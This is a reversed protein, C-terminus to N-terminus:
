PVRSATANRHDRQGSYRIVCATHSELGLRL